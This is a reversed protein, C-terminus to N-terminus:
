SSLCAWSRGVTRLRVLSPDLVPRGAFQTEAPTRDVAAAALADVADELGVVVGVDRADTHGEERERRAGESM